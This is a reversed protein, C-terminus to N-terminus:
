TLDAIELNGNLSTFSITPEPPPVIGFDQVLISPVLPNGSTFDYNLAFPSTRWMGLETGLLLRGQKDMALSHFSDPLGQIFPNSNGSANQVLDFWFVGEGRYATGDKYEKDESHNPPDEALTKILDDGTNPITGGTQFTTDV